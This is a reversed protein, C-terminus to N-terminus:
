VLYDLKPAGESPDGDAYGCITNPDGVQSGQRRLLDLGPDTPKPTWGDLPFTNQSAQTATPLGSDLAFASATFVILVTHFYKMKATNTLFQPFYVLCGGM